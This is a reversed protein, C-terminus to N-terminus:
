RSGGGGAAQALSSLFGVLGGANTRAGRLTPISANTSFKEFLFQGRKMEYIKDALFRAIGIYSEEGTYRVLEQYDASSQTYVPDTSLKEAIELTLVEVESMAGLIRKIQESAGTQRITMKEKLLQFEALEEQASRKRPGLADGEQHGMLVAKNAPEGPM